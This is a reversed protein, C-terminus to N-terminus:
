NRDWILLTTGIVKSASGKMLESGILENTFYTELDDFNKFRLRLVNKGHKNRTNSATYITKGGSRPEDTAPQPEPEHMPNPAIYSAPEKETRNLEKEESQAGFDPVTPRYPERTM